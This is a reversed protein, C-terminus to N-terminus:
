PGNPLKNIEEDIKELIDSAKRLSDMNDTNQLEYLRDLNNDRKQLLPYLDENLEIQTVGPRNVIGYIITSFHAHIYNLARVEGRITAHVEKHVDAMLDQLPGLYMNIKIQKCSIHLRDIVSGPRFNTLCVVLEDLLNDLEQSFIRVDESPDDSDSQSPGQAEEMHDNDM